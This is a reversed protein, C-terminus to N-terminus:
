QFPPPFFFPSSVQLVMIYAEDVLRKQEKVKQLIAHPLLPMLSAPYLLPITPYDNPLLHIYPGWEGGSVDKKFKKMAIYAGLLAQAPISYVPPPPFSILLM